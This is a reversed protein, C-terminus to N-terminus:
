KEERKKEIEYNMLAIQQTLRKVKDALKSITITQIFLIFLSFCFGLFFLMNVPLQIGMIKAIQSVLNPFIDLLLMIIGVIIWPLAYKLDVKRKRVMEGISIIAFVIMTGIIIQIKMNM